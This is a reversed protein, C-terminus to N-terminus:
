KYKVLPIMPNRRTLFRVRAIVLKIMHLSVRHPFSYPGKSVDHSEKCLLFCLFFKRLFVVRRAGETM